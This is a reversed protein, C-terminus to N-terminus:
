TSLRDSESLFFHAIHDALQQSTLVKDNNVLWCYGLSKTRHLPYRETGMRRADRLITGREGPLLKDGFWFTFVLCAEDGLMNGPWDERSLIASVEGASLGYEYPTRAAKISISDEIESVLRDLGDYLAEVLQKALRVGESRLRLEATAADFAQREALRKAHKAPTEPELRSGREEAKRRIVGVLEKLGYKDFDAHIYKDPVWTPSETSDLKVLVLNEFHEKLCRDTIALEEVGTWPTTGWGQRYLVVQLRSNNRFVHGFTELGDTAAIAEQEKSYVFVELGTLNDALELALPEDAALFSIAVDYDVVDNDGNTMSSKDTGVM